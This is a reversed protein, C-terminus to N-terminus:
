GQLKCLSLVLLRQDMRISMVCTGSVIGLSMSVMPVTYQGDYVQCYSSYSNTKYAASGLDRMGGGSYTATNDIVIIEDYLSGSDEAAAMM